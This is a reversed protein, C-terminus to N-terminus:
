AKFFRRQCLALRERFTAQARRHYWQEVLAKTVERKKPMLSQVFLRGCYLKVQQQVHSVVKLKYQRGLYLNTEGSIYQRELQRPQFSRLSASSDNYWPARNRLVKEFVKELPADIPAIVEVECGPENECASHKM